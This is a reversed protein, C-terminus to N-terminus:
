GTESHVKIQSDTEMAILEDDRFLAVSTDDCSTEFALIYM